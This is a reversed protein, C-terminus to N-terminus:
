STYIHSCVSELALILGSIESTRLEDISYGELFQVLYEEKAKKKEHTFENLKNRGDFFKEIDEACSTCESFSRWQREYQEQYKKRTNEDAAKFKDEFNELLHKPQYWSSIKKRDSETASNDCFHNYQCEYCKIMGQLVERDIGTHKLFMENVFYGEISYKPVVFISAKLEDIQEQTLERGVKVMESFLEDTRQEMDMADADRIILFPINFRNNILM